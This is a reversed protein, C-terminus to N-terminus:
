KVVECFTDARNPRRLTAVSGVSQWWRDLAERHCALRVNMGDSFKIWASFRQDPVAILVPVDADLAQAILDVLGGGEVESRGFRNIIVLDAGDNLAVSLRKSLDALQQIDLRCGAGHATSEHALRVVDGGPLMIVSLEPNELHCSRDVQIVGIPRQGSRRLADAFDILLRDPDDNSGYVVAAVDCQADFRVHRVESLSIYTLIYRTARAQLSVNPLEWKSQVREHLHSARLM